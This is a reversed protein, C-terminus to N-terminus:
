ENSEGGNTIGGIEWLFVDFVRELFWPEKARRVLEEDSLPCARMFMRGKPLQEVASQISTEFM